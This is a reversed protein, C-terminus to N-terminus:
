EKDLFRRFNKSVISTRMHDRWGNKDTMEDSWDYCQVLIEDKNPFIFWYSHIFSKKYKDAWHKSKSLGNQKVKSSFMENIADAQSPLELLCKSIDMTETYDISALIYQKDKSKYSVQIDDIASTSYKKSKYWKKKNTKIENESYHKLASDGLSIGEIQFDKINDAYANGSLLLGLVLITSFLKKM